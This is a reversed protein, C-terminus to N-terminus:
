EVRAQAEVFRAITGGSDCTDIADKLIRVLDKKTVHGSDLQNWYTSIKNSAIAMDELAEVLSTKAAQQTKEDAYKADDPDDTPKERMRKKVNNIVAARTRATMRISARSLFQAFARKIMEKNEEAKDATKALTNVTNQSKINEPATWIEFFEAEHWKAPLFESPKISPKISLLLV